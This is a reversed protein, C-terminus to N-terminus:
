ATRKSLSALAAILETPAVPKALHMQFGSTLARRRDESRAYATLAVAPTDGGQEPGRSRVERILEYGDQEPMALDSVLVDPRWHDFKDIAEQASAATAVDAGSNNLVVKLLDLTDPDDEVLLVRVHDLVNVKEAPATVAAAPVAKSGFVPVKTRPAEAAAMLPLTIKFTSGQGKGSSAAFVNGGHMEIVNRVIALGLGLGGYRRTSSSDAQRFREFLYPLFQPEIGIGSDTITIEAKEAGFDLRAEIHGGESTFKVANSLLNWIVQQLRGADGLVTQRRGAVEVVLAIRKAQASPRIVDIASQFVNDLEIPRVDLKLRGAVIRSMDLIDAILESQSKASRAIVELAHPTQSAPLPGNLLLSTWGLIATLPTRLEHSVTALFDDKMQSAAEAAERSAKEQRLLRELTEEIRKRETIEVVVVNVGLVRGESNKVPYYSVLFHQIEGGPAPLSIEVDLVPKGTDIVRRYLPELTDAKDGNAERLTRGIHEKVPKGNIQALRENISQYRLETDVFCLGAPATAYIAEIHALQRRAEEESRRLAEEAKKRETIDHGITLWCHEGHLELPEASFRMLRIEGSRTRMPFEFDRVYHQEKLLAVMRQRDRPDAYLGLPLTCKGLLEDRQYGALSAFSENIELIMGDEIRSIVLCDPSALFAKSFREESERIAIEAKRRETIDAMAGAVHRPTGSEDRFKSGRDDIYVYSGDARRFRYQDSWNDDDSRMFKEFKDRVRAVDDPHIRTYWDEVEIRLDGPTQGFLPRARESWWVENTKLDIEWIADQTAETVRRLREEGLKLADDAEKQRTIDQQTGWARILQGNEVIGVLNSLFYKRNRHRDTELTEAGMLRYGSRVFMRAYEIAKEGDVRVLLVTLREGRIDDVSSVGHLRAFVDNCEALYGRQYFLEIQEDEPLTVPIPKDLEYRWIGESSSSIFARYREDSDKLRQVARAREASDWCRNAVITILNIDENSWRRPTQQQVAMRAVLSGRKRLPMCVLSRIRAHEFVSREEPSLIESEADNVIYARSKRLTHRRKEDLDCLAFEVPVPVAPERTYTALVSFQETEREAEAYGCWDVGLHEALMRVSVATVQSADELPILAENLDALFQVKEQARARKLAEANAAKQSRDFVLSFTAGLIAFSVSHLAFPDGPELFFAGFVMSLGTSLLGPWLGGLWCTLVLPLVFFFYPLKGDLFPNAAWRAAFMLLVSVVAIGYQQARTLSHM